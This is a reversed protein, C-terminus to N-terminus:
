QRRGKGLKSVLFLAALGALPLLMNPTNSNTPEEPIETPMEPADPSGSPPPPTWKELALRLWEPSQQITYIRDFPINMANYIRANMYFGSGQWLDKLMCFEYLARVTQEDYKGPNKWAINSPYGREMRFFRNIESQITSVVPDESLWERPGSPDILLNRDMASQYLLLWFPLAPVSGQYDHNSM